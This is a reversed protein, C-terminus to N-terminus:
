ARPHFSSYNELIASPDVKTYNQTTSLKAHGMLEQISRLNMNSQLLHTAFSHRFAHPTINDPLNTSRRTERITRQFVGSQLIKGRKGIFLSNHKKIIYPCFKIYDNIAEIVIPLIPIIREKNGKGMVTLTTKNELDGAKVSLAESIRLGSSYLLILLAIDRKAIWEENSVNQIAALMEFTQEKTLSNPLSKQQKPIKLFFVATNVVNYYKTLFKYYSRVSSIARSTSSFQFDNNLRSAAWARLDKVTIKDLIKITVDTNQYNGIFKIFDTVDIRYSNVTNKSYRRKQSLWDQWEKFSNYLEKNIALM